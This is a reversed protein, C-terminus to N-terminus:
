MMSWITNILGNERAVLAPIQHHNKNNHTHTQTQTQKNPKIKQMETNNGSGTYHESNTSHIFPVNETLKQISSHNFENILWLIKRLLELTELTTVSVAEM